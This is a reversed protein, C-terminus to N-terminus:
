ISILVACLMIVISVMVRRCGHPEKFIFIGILTSFVISLYTLPMVELVKLTYLVYMLIAYYGIDCVAGFGILRYKSKLLHIIEMRYFLFGYVAVPFGLFHAWVIYTFPSECLRIGRIDSIFQVASALAVCFTLFITTIHKKTFFNHTKKQLFLAVIIISIAILELIKPTELLIFVSLLVILTARLGAILPVSISFESRKFAYSMSLCSLCYSACSILLYPWVEPSPLPVFPVFLIGILIFIINMGSFLVIKDTSIKISFNYLTLLLSSIIVLLITGVNM